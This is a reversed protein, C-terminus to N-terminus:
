KRSPAILYAVHRKGQRKLTRKRMLKRLEAGIRNWHFREWGERVVLERYVIELDSKLVWQGIADPTQETILALLANAHVQAPRPPEPVLRYLRAHRRARRKPLPAPVTGQSVVVPCPAPEPHRALAALRTLM